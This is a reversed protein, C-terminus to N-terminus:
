LWRPCIHAFIRQRAGLMSQVFPWRTRAECDTGRERAVSDVRPSTCLYKSASPSPQLQRRVVELALRGHVRGEVKRGRALVGKRLRVRGLRRLFRRIRLLRRERRRMGVLDRQMGLVGEVLLVIGDVGQEKGLSRRWGLENIRLSSRRWERKGLSSRRRRGQADSKRRLMGRHHSCSAAACAQMLRVRTGDRGAGLVM